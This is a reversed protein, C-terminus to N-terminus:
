NIRFLSVSVSLWSFLLRLSGWQPYHLLLIRPHLLPRRDSISFTFRLLILLRCSSPSYKYILSVNTTPTQASLSTTPLREISSFIPGLCPTPGGAPVDDAAAGDTLWNTLENFDVTSTPRKQTLRNSDGRRQRERRKRCIRRGHRDEETEDNANSQENNM